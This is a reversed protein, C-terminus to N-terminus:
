PQQGGNKHQGAFGAPLMKEPAPPCSNKKIMRGPKQWFAGWAKPRVPQQKKPLFFLEAARPV